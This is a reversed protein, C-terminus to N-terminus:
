CLKGDHLKLSREKTPSHIGIQRLMIANYMYIYLVETYMLSITIGRNYLVNRM